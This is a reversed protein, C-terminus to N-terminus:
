FITLLAVSLGGYIAIVVWFYRPRDEKTILEIQRLGLPKAYVRGEFAAWLTYAALVLGLFKFLGSV